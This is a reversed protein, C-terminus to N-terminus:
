PWLPKMARVRLFRMPENTGGLPRTTAAGDPPVIGLGSDFWNTTNLNLNQEIFYKRTLVSQWTLSGNTGGPDTTYRTIVLKSGADNPDTGALYEQLNTAGDGDADDGAGHALTGFNLLEWADAMGDGDTDVGPLIVDTQVQAFANSLSIWGCNASYCYGSFRGTNLDVSAGGLNEFNIWGINAGYAYGRLNGWGDLNLGFDTASNNQYQIGNAPAGQGVNIWGANGSYIYGSCVYDGIVVGSNTSSRWDTWGFNAGWSFKNPANITTAAPASASASVLWLLAALARLAIIDKFKM